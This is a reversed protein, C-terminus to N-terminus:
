PMLEVLQQITEESILNSYNSTHFINRLETKLENLCQENIHEFSKQKSIDVRIILEIQIQNRNSSRQQSNSTTTLQVANVGPRLYAITSTQELFEQKLYGEIILRSILREIDSYFVFFLKYSHFYSFSRGLRTLHHCSNFAQLRHHGADRITKNDTGHLIDILYPLTLNIQNIDSVLKLIEISM